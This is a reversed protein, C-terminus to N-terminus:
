RLASASADNEALEILCRLIQFLPQALLLALRGLPVIILWYLWRSGFQEDLARWKSETTHSSRRQTNRAGRILSPLCQTINGDVHRRVLPHNSGFSKNVIRTFNM